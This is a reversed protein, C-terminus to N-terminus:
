NTPPKGESWGKEKCRTIEEPTLYEPKYWYHDKTFSDGFEAVRNEEWYVAAVTDTAIPNTAHCEPCPARVPVEDNGPWMASYILYCNRCIYERRYEHRYEM